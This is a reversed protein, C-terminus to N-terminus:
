PIVPNCPYSLSFSSLLSDPSARPPRLLKSGTQGWSGKDWSRVSNAFWPCENGRRAGIQTIEYDRFDTSAKEEEAKKKKKEQRLTFNQPLYASAMSFERGYFVRRM